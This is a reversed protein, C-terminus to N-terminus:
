KNQVSDYAELLMKEQTEWNYLRAVESSIMAQIGERTIDRVADAFDEDSKVIIGNNYKEVLKRADAMDTTIIPLRSMSYEFFKNPMCHQHAVYSIDVLILGVDASSTYDFLVDPHVAEHFFINENKTAAEKVIGELSGYGLFVVVKKKDDLESFTKLVIEVGRRPSLVGQFVFIIHDDTLGFRDRFHNSKKEEKYPPCNRVIYPPKIGYLRVYENATSVSTIIIADPDHILFREEVRYFKQARESTGARVIEYERADYVLACRFIKKILYGLPLLDLDNCHVVDCRGRLVSKIGFGAMRFLNRTRRLFTKLTSFGTLRSFKSQPKKTHYAYYQIREITVGNKVEKRPNIGDWLCCVRVQYGAKALSFVERLARSDYTLHNLLLFTVKKM